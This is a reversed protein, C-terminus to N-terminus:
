VIECVTTVEFCQSDTQQLYINIIFVYEIVYNCIYECVTTVEFSQAGTQQLHQLPRQVEFIVELAHQYAKVGYENVGPGTHTVEISV